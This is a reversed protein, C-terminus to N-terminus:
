PRSPRGDPWRRRVYANFVESLDYAARKLEDASKMSVGSFDFWKAMNIQGYPGAEDIDDALGSFYDALRIAEDPTWGNRLMKRTLMSNQLTAAAASLSAIAAERLETLSMADYINQRERQEAFARAVTEKIHAPILREVASQEDSESVVVM